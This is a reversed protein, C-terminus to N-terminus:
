VEGQRTANIKRIAQSPCQVICLGCRICLQPDIVHAQKLKGTIANAPCNKACLTCGV